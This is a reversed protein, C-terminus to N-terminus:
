HVLQGGSDIQSYRLMALEGVIIGPLANEFIEIRQNQQELVVEIECLAVDFIKEAAEVSDAFTQLLLNLRFTEAYLGSVPEVPYLHWLEENGRYCVALEFLRDELHDITSQDRCLELPCITEVECFSSVIEADGLRSYEGWSRRLKERISGVHYDFAVYMDYRAFLPMRYDNM